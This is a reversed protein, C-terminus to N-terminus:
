FVIDNYLIPAPFNNTFDFIAVTIRSNSPVNRWYMFSIAKTPSFAKIALCKYANSIVYPSYLNAIM